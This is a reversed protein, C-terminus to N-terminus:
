PGIKSFIDYIPMLVGVIMVGLMSGVVILLAPEILKGMRDAIDDVKKYYQGALFEFQHELSGSTEGIDVMRIVLHPFVRHARLAESIRSGSMIDQKAQLIARKFVESGMVEAVVDFTRDISIGAAFMIRFQECFLAILKNHVLLKVIPLSIKLRDWYYRTEPKLKMLQVTLVLLVPIIPLVYWHKETFKSLEFLFRTLWPMPVNLGVIVQMIKPLVYTLWFILAGGTTVLAVIPYVLASKVMNALDQMKQLHHAVDALSEEFRGTEEGVTVLRIMVDPFVEKHLSLAETFTTGMEINKKVDELVAKFYKSDITTIIDELATLIPVGGRIMISLSSSFEIVDTRKIGRSKYGTQVRNYLGSTKRAQLLYLNRARLAGDVAEENAAELTGKVIEGGAAIAKYSYHSV